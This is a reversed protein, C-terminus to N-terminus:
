SAYAFYTGDLEVLIDVPKTGGNYITIAGKTGLPTIAMNAVAHGTAYTLTPLSPRTKGAAYVTLTGSATANLATVNVAASTTGQPSDFGVPITLSAGAGLKAVKVGIGLHTNVLTKEAVPLYVAGAVSPSAYGVLDAVLDVSASSANYLTIKGGGLPVFALNQVTAKAGWASSWTAPRTTGSAYAILEGNATTDTTLLNVLAATANSPVGHNGAITLTVSGNAPIKAKTVGTGNRSDLVRVPAVRTYTSGGVSRAYQGVVDVVLDIPGASTNSFNVASTPYVKETVVNTAPQGAVFSVASVSASTNPYVSLVGPKTANLVTVAIQAADITPDSVHLQAATLSMQDGAPIKVALQRSDYARFPTIPQYVDGAVLTVYAGPGTAYPPLEEEFQGAYVGPASYQYDWTPALGVNVSNGDGPSLLRGLLVSGYSPPPISFAVDGGLPETGFADTVTGLSPVFVTKAYVNPTVTITAHRMATAGGPYTATVTAIYLGGTTYTHSLATGTPTVTPSGDGYNVSVTYPDSWSTVGGLQSLTFAATFPAEGSATLPLFSPVFLDTREFAGRDDLGTGTNPVLPDDVRAVGNADTPSEGPAHADASDILPDGEAPTGWQSKTEDLDHAGQGTTALLAAATPYASGGWSYETSPAAAYVANYDSLTTPAADASVTIGGAASTGASCTADVVNNEVTTSSTGDIEIGPACSVRITNGTVAVGSAGDVDVGAVGTTSSIQSASLTVGSAGPAVRLGYGWGSTVNVRSVTVNASAGDVFVSAQNPGTIGTEQTLGLSDLTINQSDLVDIGDHGSPYIAALRVMRVDHVGSLTIASLSPDTVHVNAFPGNVGQNTAAPTLVGVFTIPATPTGSRRLTFPTYNKLGGATTSASIQVTQGPQVIDAARQITCFPISATGTGTDRCGAASDVYLTAPTTAASGAATTVAIGGAALILAAVTRIRHTARM